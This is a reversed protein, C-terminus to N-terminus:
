QNFVRVPRIEGGTREALALLRGAATVRVPGDGGEPVRISAGHSVRRADEASIPLAPIDALATEIPLLHEYFPPSHVLLALRELPIAASEDFPGARSRRLAAVHGLTGLRRALDRVFARVYFGKGCDIEVVAHDADPLGVLGVRHVEVLRPALGPEAGGRAVAYARRGDVKVAAFRPPRQAIVGVFSPLAAEIAARDPRAVSTGDIAGDADDTTRSEGWRITARYRKPGRMVFAITRTAQGLAIPLVGTALPDLTGAHGGKAAGTLRLVRALAVASTIGAPKDLVL